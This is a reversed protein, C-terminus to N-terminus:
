FFQLTLVIAATLVGAFVMKIGSIIVNEKSLRGLFFGLIFLTLLVLIISLLASLETPLIQLYALIFPIVAIIAALFPALGDIIAVYHSAFRSARDQLTGELSILLHEELKRLEREREATETLYAGFMGSVGMAVSGGIGISIIARPDIPGAVMAGVIVGLMTLSGDFANMVFYRRAIKGVRSVKRYQRIKELIKKM